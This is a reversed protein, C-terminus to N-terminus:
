ERIPQAPPLRSPASRFTPQLETLPRREAPFHKELWRACARAGPSTHQFKSSLDECKRHAAKAQEYFPRAADAGLAVHTQAWLQGRMRAALAGADVVAGPPPLPMRLVELLKEEAREVKARKEKMDTVDGKKVKFSLAEDVAPRALAILADGHAMLVTASAQASAGDFSRPVAESASMVARWEKRADDSRGLAELARALTAHAEVRGESSRGERDIRPMARRLWKVAEDHEARHLLHWGVAVEVRWTDGKAGYYRTVDEAARQAGRTDGLAMRLTVLNELAHRAEADKPHRAAREFYVKAGEFDAISFLQMAGQFAARAVLDPRALADPLALLLSRAHMSRTHDGARSFAAAANFLQEDPARCASSREKGCSARSRDYADLYLRGAERMLAREQAPDDDGAEVRLNALRELATSGAGVFSACSKANPGSADGCVARGFRETDAAIQHLCAPERARDALLGTMARMYADSATSVDTGPKSSLIAARARSAAQEMRGAEADALARTAASETSESAPLEDQAAPLCTASPQAAAPRAWVVFASLGLWVFRRV